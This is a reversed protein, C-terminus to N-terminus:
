YSMTSDKDTGLQKLTKRTSKKNSKQFIDTMGEEVFTHVRINTWIGIVLKLLDLREAAPTTRVKDDWLM